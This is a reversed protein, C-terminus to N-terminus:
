APEIKRLGPVRLLRPPRLAPSRDFWFEVGDRQEIAEVAAAQRRWSLAVLVAYGAAIAPVQPLLVGVAAAAIAFVALPWLRNFIVSGPELEPLATTSRAEALLRAIGPTPRLRRGLWLGALAAALWWGLAVYLLTNDEEQTTGYISVVALATAAGASLLVAVRLLDRFRM